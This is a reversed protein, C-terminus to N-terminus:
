TLNVIWAISVVGSLGVRIMWFCNRTGIIVLEESDMILKLWDDINKSVSEPVIM